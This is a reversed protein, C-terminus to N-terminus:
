QNGGLIYHWWFYVTGSMVTILVIWKLWEPPEWRRRGKPAWTKRHKVM